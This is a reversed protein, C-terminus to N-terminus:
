PREVASSSCHMACKCHWRLWAAGAGRRGEGHLMNFTSACSYSCANVVPVIADCSTVIDKHLTDNHPGLDVIAFQAGM